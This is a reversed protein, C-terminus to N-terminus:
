KTNRETNKRLYRCGSQNCVVRQVPLCIVGTAIVIIAGRYAANASGGVPEAIM